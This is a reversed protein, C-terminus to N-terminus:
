KPWQTGNLAHHKGAQMDAESPAKKAAQFAATAGLVGLYVPIGVAANGSNVMAAGAAIAGGYHGATSLPKNMFDRVKGM